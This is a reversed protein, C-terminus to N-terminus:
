LNNYLDSLDKGKTTLKNELEWKEIDHKIENEYQHFRTTMEGVSKGGSAFWVIYYDFRNKKVVCQFGHIWCLWRPDGDASPELRKINKVISKSETIYTKINM